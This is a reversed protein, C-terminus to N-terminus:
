SKVKLIKSKFVSRCIDLFASFSSAGESALSRNVFFRKCAEEGWPKTFYDM